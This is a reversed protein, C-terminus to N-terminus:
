PDHIDVPAVESLELPQIIADVKLYLTSTHSYSSVESNGVM